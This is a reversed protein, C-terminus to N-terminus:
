RAVHRVMEGYASANAKVSRLINRAESAAKAAQMAFQAVDQLRRSDTEVGSLLEDETKAILAVFSEALAVKKAVASM